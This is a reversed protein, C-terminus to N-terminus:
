QAFNVITMKGVRRSKSDGQVAEIAYFYVGSAVVQNNRNRVNWSLEGGFTTSNQELVNVLVGSASYIRVIAKEPLNVFKIVKNDSSQEFENTVYYPDPVTHVAKLSKSSVPSTIDNVATYVASIGGGVANFPRTSPTFSYNGLDGTVAGRGGHIVGAYTRLAWVTGAAPLAGGTLEFVTISGAIYISFGAGAATNAPNRMSQAQSTSQQDGAGFAVPGPIATNSLKFSAASTCPFFADPSGLSRFPEVCTWDLATLVGNRGDYGGAGQGAVNLVGWGADVSTPQFPVVVNHTVDIVSDILGATGWYLNFDAARTVSALQSGMNRWERNIMAYALPQYVTTVGTLKGANNFSTTSSCAGGTSGSCAGKNPNPETEKATPSPGDFWRFANYRDTTGDFGPEALAIGLGWDVAKPGTPITVNHSGKMVYTGDGGYRSALASDTTVADFFGSGSTESALDQQLAYVFNFSDAATFVRWYYRAPIGGVPDAGGCCGSLDLQGVRISDLVARVAGSGGVVQSLFEGAFAINAGDAPRQPGSFVGTTPDITPDTPFVSDMPVGRGFMKIQLDGILVANSAPKVPTVSRTNRPSELSTPGSEISNIDFATVSYFYRFSNRPTNDVFVFPVGNDSPAPCASRPGCGGFSGRGTIATDAKVVFATNNQLWVRGSGSKVQILGGVIDYDQHVALTTGDKKNGGDAFAAPCNTLIGYEPACNDTPNVIGTYDNLTTGSYDFQALLTLENPADVRGRYIRYGEVDLFRYNPDYLFNNLAGVKAANAVAYYPDGAVESPSPKWMVSVKNDGPILFFEPSSPAFPLLFKADFVAQATLSKGLLSGPVVTFEAQQPINDGNLDSFGVYGMITDVTNVGIASMGGVTTTRFPDGPTVDCGTGPCAGSPVPAAFIYAVVISGGQGPALTLPTSSQFFRMDGPTAKNVYCIKSSPAYQCPRDGAATSQTGSLYRYLQVVDRADDVGGAFTSANVTNSFLNIAGPGTPSKLYKVGVFGAGPFFPSGFISADFTWEATGKFSHDYTNGLAFPLNVTSYNAGAEAVDMDASFAAFLNNIDYGTTPVGTVGNAALQGHFDNAKGVLIDAMSGRIGNAIYDARNTTTINYFTYIFYLIDENGAPFNWGMGRTEVAVGLPHKRGARQSYNGEWSVFWVDGQSASKRCNPIGTGGGTPGSTSDSQLLKSFLAGNFDPVEDKADESPVCAAAPWITVDDPNSINHIPQVQEGHETTGKPDFFFGGTTDNAWTGGNPGVIGAVQLGSNFVYQDPTGKPWFGGGITSSNTSDVCVRGDSALGCYIRNITMAGLARAFLRFGKRNAGPQPEASASGPLAAIALFAVLVALLVGKTRFRSHM